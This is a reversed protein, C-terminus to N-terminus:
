TDDNRGRKALQQRAYFEAMAALEARETETLESMQAVVARVSSDKSWEAPRDIGLFQTAAEDQLRQLPLELGAAMARLEALKPTIIPLGKEVRELWGRKIPQEGTEPDICREGLTRLSLGLAARRDRVIDSFPTRSREQEAM